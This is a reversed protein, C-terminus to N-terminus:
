WCDAGPASTKTGLHNITMTQCDADGAQSGRAAASLTYQTASPNTVTITYITGVIADGFMRNNDDVSFNAVNAGGPINLDTVDATYGKNDMRFTELKSAVDLLATKAVSRKSRMVYNQYSPVGIAVLVSVIVVVIMLEILTFGCQKNNLGSTISILM